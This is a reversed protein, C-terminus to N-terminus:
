HKLLQGAQVVPLTLAHGSRQAKAKGPYTPISYAYGALHFRNTTFVLHVVLKTVSHHKRLHDSLLAKNHMSVQLTVESAYLLQIMDILASINFAVFTRM